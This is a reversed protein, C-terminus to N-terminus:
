LCFVAYSIGLHSSNLRTSKRDLWRRYTPSAPRLDLAVDFVAGRTVRVLKAEAHPARQFHMGRLTGRRPNWSVSCQALEARLGREAFERRCWVRAFGGREDELLEPEVVVVGPIKTAEFRM